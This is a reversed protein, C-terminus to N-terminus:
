YLLCSSFDTKVLGDKVKFIGLGLFVGFGCAPSSIFAGVMWGKGEAKGLAQAPCVSWTVGLPVDRSHTAADGSDWRGQAM